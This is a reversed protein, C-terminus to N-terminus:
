HLPPSPRSVPSSHLLPSPRSALPSHLLPRSALPSYFRALQAAQFRVNRLYPANENRANNWPRAKGEGRAGQKEGRGGVRRM